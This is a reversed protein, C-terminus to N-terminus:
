SEFIRARSPTPLNRDAIPSLQVLLTEAPPQDLIDGETPQRVLEVDPDVAFPDHPM